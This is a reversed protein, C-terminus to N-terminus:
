IYNAIYVLIDELIDKVSGDYKDESYYEENLIEGDFEVYVAPPCVTDYGVEHFKLEFKFNNDFVVSHKNIRLGWKINQYYWKQKLEETLQKRLDLEQFEKRLM